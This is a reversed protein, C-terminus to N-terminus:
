GKGRPRSPLVNGLVRQGTATAALEQNLDSFSSVNPVSPAKPISPNPQTDPSGSMPAPITDGAKEGWDEQAEFPELGDPVTDRPELLDDYGGVDGRLERTGSRRLSPVSIRPPTIEAGRSM